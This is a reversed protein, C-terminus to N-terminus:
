RAAIGQHAEHRSPRGVPLSIALEAFLRAIDSPYIGADGIPRGLVLPTSRPLSCM